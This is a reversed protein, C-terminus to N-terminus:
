EIHEANFISALKNPRFSRILKIYNILFKCELQAEVCFRVVSRRKVLSVSQGQAIFAKEINGCLNITTRSLISSLNHSDSVWTIVM